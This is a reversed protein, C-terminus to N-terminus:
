MARVKQFFKNLREYNEPNTSSDFSNVDQTNVYIVQNQTTLEIKYQSTDNIEIQYRSNNTSGFLQDKKTAITIIPVKLSDSYSSLISESSENLLCSAPSMNSIDNKSNRVEALWEHLNYKSKNNTADFVLMIGQYGRDFLFSRAIKTERSGGIDWFEIFNKMDLMKVDISCGITWTSSHLVKSQCILHILSTKGVGSDGLVLVRSVPNGTYSM